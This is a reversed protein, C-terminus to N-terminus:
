RARDPSDGAGTHAAEAAELWAGLTAFGEAHALRSPANGDGDAQLHVGGLGVDPSLLWECVRHNGKLAAKHVASHGNHNLLALDLGVSQLWRCMDCGESLDSQAAWQVANCGYSNCAHVDALGGGVLYQCVALQGQWVAWHLPTTGDHTPADAECGQDVLWRCIDLRGNRAAWHMATRGDKRQRALPSAGMEALLRCAALHGGGAAWMM